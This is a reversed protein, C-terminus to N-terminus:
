RILTTTRRQFPLFGVGLALGFIVHEIVAPGLPMRQALAELGLAPLLASSMVVWVLLGFLAGFLLTGATSAGYVLLGFVVGWFVSLAFFVLLGIAIAPGDFGPLLAREGLFPAASMKFGVWADRGSAISALLGYLSLVIGGFFGAVVGGGLALTSQQRGRAAMIGREKGSSGLVVQCLPHEDRSRRTFARREDLAPPSTYQHIPGAEARTNRSAHLLTM